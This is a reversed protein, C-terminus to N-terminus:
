SSRRPEPQLPATSAIRLAALSRSTQALSGGLGVITLTGDSSSSIM